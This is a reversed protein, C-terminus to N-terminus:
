QKRILLRTSCFSLKWMTWQTRSYEKMTNLLAKAQVKVLKRGLTQMQIEALINALTDVLAKDAEIALKDARTKGKVLAVM